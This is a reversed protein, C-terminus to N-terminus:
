LVWGVMRCGEDDLFKPNVSGVKNLEGLIEYIEFARKCIRCM